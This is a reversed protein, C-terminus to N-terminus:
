SSFVVILVDYPYTPLQNNPLSAIRRKMEEDEEGAVDEKVTDENQKEEDMKRYDSYQPYEFISSRATTQSRPVSSALHIPAYSARLVSTIGRGSPLIAPEEDEEDSIMLFSRQSEAARREAEKRQAERREAERKAAEKREAERRKTERRENERREAERREAERREAEKREAERREAERREAEKREAERREKERREAEKREAEIREAEIREKERREAEKREAEKKEAEIREAEAKEMMENDEENDRHSDPICRSEGNQGGQSRRKYQDCALAMRRNAESARHKKEEDTLSKRQQDNSNAPIGTKEAEEQKEMVQKKSTSEKSVVDDQNPVSMENESEIKKM